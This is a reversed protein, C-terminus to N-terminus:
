FASPQLHAARLREGAEPPVRVTWHAGALMGRDVVLRGGELGGYSFRFVWQRGQDAIQEVTKSRERGVAGLDLWDGTGTPSVEVNLQYVTPNDITLAAVDAPARVASAVASTLAAVLAVGAV